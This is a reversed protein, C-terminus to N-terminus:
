AACSASARFCPFTAPACLPDKRTVIGFVVRYRRGRVLELIAAADQESLSERILADLRDAAQPDSRILEIANVGQNFLHSLQASLTSVKIHYFVAIGGRVVLM